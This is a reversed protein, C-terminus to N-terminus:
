RRRPRWANSSQVAAVPAAQHNVQAGRASASNLTADLFGLVAGVTAAHRLSGSHGMGQTIHLACHPLLLAIQEAQTVPVVDDDRDQVLLTPCDIRPALELASISSALRDFRAAFRAHVRKALKEDADLMQLFSDLLYGLDRPLSILAAAHVRPLAQPDALRTAIALAGLSHGILADVPGCSAIVADLAQRFETLSSRRGDSRGHGPADLALTRWGRALIGQVFTSFRPAHSGWGHMLLVSRPGSGWEYVQVERGNLALRQLRAQALTPADIADLERRTPKLFQDLALRSALAPSLAQVLRFLRRLRALRAPSM